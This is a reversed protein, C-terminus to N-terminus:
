LSRKMQSILVGYWAYCARAAWGEGDSWFRGRENQHRQPRGRCPRGDSVQCAAEVSQHSLGALLQSIVAGWRFPDNFSQPFRGSVDNNNSMTRAVDCGANRLQSTALVVAPACAPCLCGPPLYLGRDERRPGVWRDHSALYVRYFFLDGEIPFHFNPLLHKVDMTELHCINNKLQMLRFSCRRQRPESAAM